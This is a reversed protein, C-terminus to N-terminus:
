FQLELTLINAHPPEIDTLEKAIERNKGVSVNASDARKAPEL